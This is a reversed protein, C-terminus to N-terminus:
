RAVEGVTSLLLDYVTTTGMSVTDLAVDPVVTTGIAPPIAEYAYTAEIEQAVAGAYPEDGLFGKRHVVYYPGLFSVHFLLARDEGPIEVEASYASDFTGGLIHLSRDTIEFRAGLRRLM